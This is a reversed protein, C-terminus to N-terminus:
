DGDDVTQSLYGINPTDATTAGVTGFIAITLSLVVLLLGLKKDIKISNITDM